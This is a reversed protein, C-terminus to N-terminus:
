VSVSFDLCSWGGNTNNDPISAAASIFYSGFVAIHAQISLMFNTLQQAKKRLEIEAESKLAKWNGQHHGM